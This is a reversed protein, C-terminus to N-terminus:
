MAELSDCNLDRILITLRYEVTKAAHMYVILDNQVLNVAGAIRVASSLVQGRRTLLRWSAAGHSGTGSM